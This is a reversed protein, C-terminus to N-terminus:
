SLRRGLLRAHLRVFTLRRRVSPAGARTVHVLHLHARTDPQQRETRAPRRPRCLAGRVSPTRPLVRQEHHQPALRTDAAARRSAAARRPETADAHGAAGARVRAQPSAGLRAGPDVVLGARAAHLTRRRVRRDVLGVDKPARQAAASADAGHPVGRAREAHRRGLQRPVSAGRPQPHSLDATRRPVNSPLHVRAALQHPRGVLRRRAAASQPELVSAHRRDLRLLHQAAHRVGRALHQALSPPEALLRQLEDHLGGTGHQLGMPWLTRSPRRVRRQWHQQQHQQQYRWRYQEHAADLYRHGQDSQAGMPRPLECGVALALHGLRAQPRRCARGRVCLDRRRAGGHTRGHRAAQRRAVPRRVLQRERAYLRRLRGQPRQAVRGRVQRRERACVRWPWQASQRAVLWRVYVRWSM